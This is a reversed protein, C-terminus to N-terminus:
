KRIVVYTPKEQESANVGHWQEPVPPEVWRWVRLADAPSLQVSGLGHEIGFRDHWAAGHLLPGSDLEVSWPLDLVDVYDAIKKPDYQAFTIHKARVKFTGLPTSASSAPDGLRDRGVSVLTAFVPEKGEYLVLSGTVVSIDIWKQQDQAIEPYVNRERILTADRHRIFRGDELAWYRLGDLERFRGTLPLTAHFDVKGLKESEGKEVRWARVGRKVVFALPLATKEDLEVGSFSSAEAASLDSALVFHGNTMLGFRQRAGSPDLASWSGVVALVSKARLTGVERVANDKAPDREYIATEKKCRAYTYPLPQELKPALAMALLTPHKLDLTAAKSACVFGRPRIPYWGGDCGETSYAENARAVQAGAHLYGIPKADRAPGELIPTLEAVAGLKPGDAPPVPVRPIQSRSSALAPGEESGTCGACAFGAVVVSAIL